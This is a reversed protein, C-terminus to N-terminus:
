RSSSLIINSAAFHEILTNDSITSIINPIYSYYQFQQCEFQTIMLRNTPSNKCGFVRFVNFKLLFFKRQM